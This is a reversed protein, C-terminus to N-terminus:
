GHRPQPGLCGVHRCRDRDPGNEDKLADRMVEAPPDRLLEVLSGLSLPRGNDECYQLAAALIVQEAPTVNGGGRGISCLAVLLALRRAHAEESLGDAEKTKGADRLRQAAAAIPGPDLPNLTDHGRGLTLVQGGIASIVDPYDPKVDGLILPRVGQASLGVLLRKNVASKGVGPAGIVFVGPNNVLGVKVWEFPSFCVTEREAQHYGMPIGHQPSGSGVVFPNLGCIQTTPGSFGVGPLVAGYRGAFRRRYGWLPALEGVEDLAPLYEPGAWDGDLYGTDLDPLAANRRGLRKKTRRPKM